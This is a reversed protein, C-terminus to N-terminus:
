WFQRKGGLFCLGDRDIVRRGSDMWLGLYLGTCGSSSSQTQKGVVTRHDCWGQGGSGGSAEQGM